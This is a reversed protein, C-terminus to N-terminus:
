AHTCGHVVLWVLSCYMTISLHPCSCVQLILTRPGCLAALTAILAEWVGPDSGYIVEAMLIVDPTGTAHRDQELQQTQQAVHARLESVAGEQGWPLLLAQPTHRFHQGESQLARDAHAWPASLPSIISIYMLTSSKCTDEM